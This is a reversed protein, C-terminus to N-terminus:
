IRRKAWLNLNRQIFSTPLIASIILFFLIETV